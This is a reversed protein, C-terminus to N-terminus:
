GKAAMAEAKKIGSIEDSSLLRDIDLVVILRDGVKGVGKLYETEVGKVADPTSEIQGAKMYIVEAVEDVLTGVMRGSLRLIIARVKKPDAKAPDAGFKKRMDLIPVVKGRLNIVGEVIPPANPIRTVKQARIIEMIRMIDIAYEEGGVRFVALQIEDHAAADDKTRATELAM